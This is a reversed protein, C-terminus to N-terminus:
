RGIKARTAACIMEDSPDWIVNRASGHNTRWVVPEGVRIPITSAASIAGM